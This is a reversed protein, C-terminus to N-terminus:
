DKKQRGSERRGSEAKANSNRKLIAKTEFSAFEIRARILQWLGIACFTPLWRLDRARPRQGVAPVHPSQALNM